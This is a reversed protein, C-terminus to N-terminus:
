KLYPNRKSCYISCRKKYPNSLLKVIPQIERKIVHKVQGKLLITKNYINLNNIDVGVTSIATNVLNGVRGPITIIKRKVVNKGLDVTGLDIIGLNIVQVTM